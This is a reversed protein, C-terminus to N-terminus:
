QWLPRFLMFGSMRHSKLFEALSQEIVKGATRTAHRMLIDDGKIFLLGTHFVDLRRKTSVFFILDGTQILGRAREFNKKPFYHFNVTKPPLGEVVNLIRFKEITDDRSPVYSIFGQNVNNMAWYTM